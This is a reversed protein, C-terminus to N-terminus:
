TSPTSLGRQHDAQIDLLERPGVFSRSKGQTISIQINNPRVDTLVERM